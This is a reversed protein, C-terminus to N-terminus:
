LRNTVPQIEYEGGDDERKQSLLLNPSEPPTLAEDSLESLWAVDSDSCNSGRGGHVNAKLRSM